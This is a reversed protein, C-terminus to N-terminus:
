LTHLVSSEYLHFLVLEATMLNWLVSHILKEWRTTYLMEKKGTQADVVCCKWRTTQKNSETTQRQQNPLLFPM